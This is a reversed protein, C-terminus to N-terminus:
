RRVNAEAWRGGFVPSALRGDIHSRVPERVYGNKKKSWENGWM